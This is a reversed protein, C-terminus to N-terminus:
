SYYNITLEFVLLRAYLEAQHLSLFTRWETTYTFWLQYEIGKGTLLSFLNYNQLM